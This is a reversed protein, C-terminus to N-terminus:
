HRAVTTMSAKYQNWISAIFRFLQQGWKRRSYMWHLIIYLVYVMTAFPSFLAIVNIVPLYIHQEMSAVNIGLICVYFLSIFAIFVLDIQQNLHVSKKFPNVNILLVLWLTCALITYIFYMSTLTLAHIIFFAFRIFLGLQAFWRCDSTGPETGDKYCGQFSDVFAHLFHWHMPFISLFRQFFPFPYLTLILTPLVVFLTLFVLALIAFPLHREGFYHLTPDYFLRASSKGDLSYVHVYVLLDNSVSLVKVYSLLFFTTFSDIISTRIDWNRKFISFVKHFPRWMYVLCGIDRDYLLILVYSLAILFIPYVAIAYDLALAGLTSVNMCIDPILTRFFDLNWFSYLPFAIKLVRLFNPRTKFTLVLIRALAPMTIVQSFLVVGNLRSSTININFVVIFMYFFTLPVFGALIFKWWNKNGDPCEVCSLNYSLVFPSLGPACQGCLTGTRNFRGCTKATLETPNKPLPHYVRDYLTKHATNMCNYYCPGVQTEKTVNDYTVCHCDSVATM